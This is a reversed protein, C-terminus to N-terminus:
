SVLADPFRQAVLERTVKSSTFISSSYVKDAEAFWLDSGHKLLTVDDGKARHWTSLRMLAFNPFKGDVQFLLVRM